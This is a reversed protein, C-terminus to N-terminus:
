SVTLTISNWTILGYNEPIPNVIINALVAKGNTQLVQTDETPTVETPGTYIEYDGKKIVNGFSAHFTANISRFTAHFTAM